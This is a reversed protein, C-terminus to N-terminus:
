KRDNVVRLLESYDLHEYESYIREIFDIRFVYSIYFSLDNTLKRLLYKDDDIVFQDREKYIDIRFLKPSKTNNKFFYIMYM